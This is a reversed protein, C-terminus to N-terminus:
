WFASPEIVIGSTSRGYMAPWSRMVASQSPPYNEPPAARDEPSTGHSFTDSLYGAVADIIEQRGGYGVGV